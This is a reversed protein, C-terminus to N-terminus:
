DLCNEMARPSPDLNNTMLELEHAAEISLEYDGIITPQFRGHLAM